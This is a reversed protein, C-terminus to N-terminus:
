VRVRNIHTLFNMGVFIFDQSPILDSKAANLLLGLSLLEKWSFELHLVLLRRDLQNYSGITSISFRNFGTYESTHAWRPWSNPQFSTSSHVIWLADCSVPLGPRSLLLAPVEPLQSPYSCPLICRGPALFGGLAHTQHLASHLCSDGDQFYTQSSVHQVSKLRHSTELLRKEKSCPFPPQLIRSFLPRSGKRGGTKRTRSHLRSTTSAFIGSRNPRSLTPAKKQFSFNPRKHCHFSGVRGFNNPAMSKRLAYTQGRSTPQPPLFPNSRHSVKPLDVRAPLLILHSRTRMPNARVGIKALLRSGIPLHETKFLLGIHPSVHLLLVSQLSVTRKANKAPPAGPPKSAPRKFVVPHQGSNSRALSAHIQDERDATLAAQIRGGFLSDATLPATRLSNVGTELLFNNPLSSLILDRRLRLMVSMSSAANHSLCQTTHSLHILLARLEEPISDSLEWVMDLATAAMLDLQNALDISRRERLEWNELLSLPVATHTSSSPMTLSLKSINADPVPLKSLDLGTSPDPVPAKYSKGGDMQKPETLEKPAKWPSPSPKNAPELSQFVAMTSSGIPLCLDVRSTAKSIRGPEQRRAVQETVTVASGTLSLSSRPCFGKDLTHFMLEYVQNISLWIITNPRMLSRVRRLRVTQSIMLPNNETVM